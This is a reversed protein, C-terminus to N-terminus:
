QNPSKLPTAPPRAPRRKVPELLMGVGIVQGVVDIEAPDFVAPAQPSSPHPLVILRDEALACWGCRYGGRYELFYIPRDYQSTWGGRTIRRRNQDILVLSGPQIVPAMSWDELGILGYRYHRIDLGGLFNLPTKGWRRLLWTAWAASVSWALKRARQSAGTACRRTHPLGPASSRRPEPSILTPPSECFSTNMSSSAIATAVM